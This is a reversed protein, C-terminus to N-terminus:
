TVPALWRTLTQHVPLFRGPVVPAIEKLLYTVFSRAFVLLCLVYLLAGGLVLLPVRAWWQLEPLHTHAVVIGAFMTIAALAPPLLKALVDRITIGLARTVSHIAYPLLLYGSVVSAVTAWLLGHRTGALLAMAGVGLSSLQLVFLSRSRSAAMLAPTSIKIMVLPIVSFALVRMVQSSSEWKDGFLLVILDPSLAGMGFFVPFVLLGTVAMVALYGKQGADAGAVRRSFSSLAVDQIPQVLVQTALDLSRQGIRFFALQAAGLVVPIVMEPMRTNALELLRAGSVHAAFGRIERVISWSFIFKPMWRAANWTVLTVIVAQVIRQFVLAWIGWGEFALWVAVVGATTNATLGRLALQDYRFHRRLYSVHVARASDIIYMSSLVMLANATNDDFHPRILPAIGFIVLLTIIVAMAMNLWFGTSGAEETWEARKILAEPIGGSAIHRGVDIFIVAFLVAGIEAPNLLRALVAFIVFAILNNLVTGLMM